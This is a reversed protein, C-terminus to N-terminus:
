DSNKVNSGSSMFVEPNINGILVKLGSIKSSSVALTQQCKDVQKGSNSKELRLNREKEKLVGHYGNVVLVETSTRRGLPRNTM